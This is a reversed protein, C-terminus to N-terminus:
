MSGLAPDNWAAVRFSWRVEQFLRFSGFIVTLGMQSTAHIRPILLATMYRLGEPRGPAPETFRGQLAASRAYRAGVLRERNRQYAGSSPPETTTSSRSWERTGKFSPFLITDLPAFRLLSM